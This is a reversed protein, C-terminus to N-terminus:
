RAPSFAPPRAVIRRRMVADLRALVKAKCRARKRARLRRPNQAILM